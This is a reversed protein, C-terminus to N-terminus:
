VIDKDFIIKSFRSISLTHELKPLTKQLINEQFDFQMEFKSEWDEPLEYSFIGRLGTAPPLLPRLELMLNKGSILDNIIVNKYSKNLTYIGICTVEPIIIGLPYSATVGNREHYKGEESYILEKNHDYFNFMFQYNSYINKM